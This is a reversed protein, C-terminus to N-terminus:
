RVDYSGAHFALSPGYLNISLRYWLEQDIGQVDVEIPVHLECKIVAIDITPARYVRSATLASHM